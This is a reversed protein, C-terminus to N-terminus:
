LSAEVEQELLQYLGQEATEVTFGNSEPKGVPLLEVYKKWGWRSHYCYGPPFEQLKDTVSVLAKAESAFYFSNGRIGYYLPKIGVPDRALFVEEGDSIA